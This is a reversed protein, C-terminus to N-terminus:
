TQKPLMVPISHWTVYFLRLSRCQQQLKISELKWSWMHSCCYLWTRSKTPDNKHVTNQRSNAWKPQKSLGCIIQKKEKWGKWWIRCTFVLLMRIRIRDQWKQLNCNVAELCVGGCIDCGNTGPQDHYTQDYM